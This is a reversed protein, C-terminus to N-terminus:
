VSADHKRSRCPCCLQLCAYPSFCRTRPRCSMVLPMIVLTYHCVEAVVVRGKATQVPWLMWGDWNTTPMMSFHFNLSYPSCVDEVVATATMAWLENDAVARVTVRLDLGHLPARAPPCWLVRGLVVVVLIVAHMCSHMRARARARVCTHARARVCQM